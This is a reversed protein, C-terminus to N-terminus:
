KGDRAEGVIRRAEQISIWRSFVQETRVGSRSTGPVIEFRYVGKSIRNRVTKECVGEIKAVEAVSLHTPDTQRGIITICISLLKMQDEAITRMHSALLELRRLVDADSHVTEVPLLPHVNAEVPSVNCICSSLEINEYGVMGAFDSFWLNLFEDLTVWGEERGEILLLRRGHIWEHSLGRLDVTPDTFASEVLAASPFPLPEPDAPNGSPVRM